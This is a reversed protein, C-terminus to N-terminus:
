EGEVRVIELMEVIVANAEADFAGDAVERLYSVSAISSSQTVPKDVLRSWGMFQPSYVDGRIYNQDDYANRRIQVRFRHKSPTAVVLEYYWSQNLKWTREAITKKKAM